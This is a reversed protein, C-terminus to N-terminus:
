NRRSENGRLLAMTEDLTPCSTQAGRRTVSIAAAASAFRVASSLSKTEMLGVALAANFTDGAATTDVAEVPFAPIHVAQGSERIWAGDIGMKLVVEQAGLVALRALADPAGKVSQQLLHAAETENPTLLDVLNLVAASLHRAPAPDLISTAGRARAIQLAQQVAETPSELQCMVFDGERVPELRKRVTDATLDANAGPSVVITNDGNPLVQIFATGTPTGGSAVASTDVGSRALSQLLFRGNEDAGAQGILRVSAGLRAGAVAQNAGKGGPFRRPPGGLITEGPEAIRDVSVAYDVNLSGVVHISNM